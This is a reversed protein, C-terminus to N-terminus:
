RAGGGGGGFGGGGFGGFHGGGGSRGIHGGGSSKKALEAMSRMMSRRMCSNLIMYDFVTMRTECWTPPALTIRAFKETWEKTVGLAQAYPLVEYYLEPNEALMFKIKDEETVVIFEKFGLVDGLAAIYGESRVLAGQALLMPLLAGVCVVVKESVTMIHEAFLLVVLIAVVACVAIEICLFGLRKGKGWKYRYNERVRGLVMCVIAPLFFFLGALYAYGGGLRKGMFLPAFIGFAVGVLSCLVWALTSLGQYMPKPSVVQLKAAQAADYYKSELASVAIVGEGSARAFLGNFLTKEHASANEPLAPVLRVLKPEEENTLDIKLYGKSAFYYMMSTIDENDVTGDLIKGMQLPTMGKPPKIHVTTVLERKKRLLIAAVAVGICVLAVLLLVWLKETFIQTSAYGELVGDALAFRVTIGEAMYEGYYGDDNMELLDARVSLTKGDSSLTSAYPNASGYAGKYVQHSQAAAPLRLTATVNHLPVSWGFGVVDITMGNEEYVNPLMTYTIQYSRVAGKFVGGICEVDIFGSMDPNDIVDYHFDPNEDLAVARIDLYRCGETPLSRYFMTLDSRLFRVTIQEKVAVRRDTTVTMDVDYRTVEILDGSSAIATVECRDGEKETVSAFPFLLALFILAVTLWARVRNKYSNKRM